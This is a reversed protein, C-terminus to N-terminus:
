KTLYGDLIELVDKMNERGFGIRTHSTGYEFTESPLLMIGTDKVLKEAFDMATEKINLKIFDVIQPLSITISTIIVM